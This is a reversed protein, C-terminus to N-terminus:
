RRYGELHAGGRGRHASGLERDRTLLRRGEERAVARIDDDEELGADPAYVTDHGCMRLYSVLRGLMADALLRERSM